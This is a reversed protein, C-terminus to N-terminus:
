PWPLESATICSWLLSQSRKLKRRKNNLRRMLHAQDKLLSNALESDAQCWVFEAPNLEPAYGPFPEILLRPHANIFAQVDHQRHISAGDWLALIPGDIEDLLLQLFQKVDPGKFSRRRFRLYLAIRRRKPSVSLATM